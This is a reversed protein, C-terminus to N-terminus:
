SKPSYPNDSPPQPTYGGQGYGGTTGQGYGSVSGGQDYGGVYGGPESGGPQGTYSGGFQGTSSGGFQGASQGGFQGRPYGSGTAAQLAARTAALEREIPWPKFAFLCVFVINAIPVLLIFVWPWPYGAKAPIRSYVWFTAVIIALYLAIFFVALGVPLDDAQTAATLFDM